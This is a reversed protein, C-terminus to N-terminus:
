EVTEDSGGEENEKPVVRTSEVFFEVNKISEQHFRSGPKSKAFKVLDAITLLDSINRYNQKNVTKEKKLASSIEDSTMELANYGYRGEIYTRLIDTLEIYYEKVKGEQWLQKSKLQELENFAVVYPPPPPPPPLAEKKRKRLYFILGILAGLLLFFILLGIIIYPLIDQFTLPVDIHPKIAKIEASTTDIEPANVRIMIPQTEATKARGNQRYNFVIPPIVHYGSDFVTLVLQQTEYAMKDNILTDIKGSRVIDLTNISDVLFPWEVNVDTPHELNIRLPIHEGILFSTQPISTKVIVNEQANITTYFISLCITLWIYKLLYKM